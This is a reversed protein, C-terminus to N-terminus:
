SQLNTFCCPLSYESKMGTRPDVEVEIKRVPGRLGSYGSLERPDSGEDDPYGSIDLSHSMCSESPLVPQPMGWPNDIHEEHRYCGLREETVEFERTGRSFSM